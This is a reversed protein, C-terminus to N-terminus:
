VGFTARLMDRTGPGLGVAIVAVLLMLSYRPSEEMIEENFLWVAGTAAVLKLLLFPWVTGTVAAIDAPLLTKTIADVAANVPHKPFYQGVGLAVGWDMLLVNAAGDVAHGWIVAVGISGTGALVIPAYQRVLWWTVGTSVTAIGLTLLLVAPHFTVYSTTVVLASLWALTAVLLALGVGFLPREYREVHGRRQAWLSAVLVALTLAFMTFYIVPSILLSNLPYSLAPEVGAERAADFADEVVRLAGGFFVYPLLAFFFERREGVGLRRVLLIVGIVALLLVLMYGIENATNYGRYAVIDGSARCAARSTLLERAGGNWVACYAGNADAYVPGWFYRWVFGAYVTRPFALSGGLVAVVLAGAAAAWLRAPTAAERDVEM